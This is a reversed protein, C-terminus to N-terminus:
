CRSRCVKPFTLQYVAHSKVHADPIPVQAIQKTSVLTAGQFFLLEPTRDTALDDRETFHSRMGRDIVPTKLVTQDDGADLLIVGFPHFGVARARFAELKVPLLHCDLFDLGSRTRLL